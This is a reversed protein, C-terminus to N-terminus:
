DKRAADVVEIIDDTFGIIGNYRLWANIKDYANMNRVRTESYEAENILYEDLEKKTM